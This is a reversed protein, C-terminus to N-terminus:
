EEPLLLEGVLAVAAGRSHVGLKDYLQHVYARVTAEAWGTRESIQRNSRGRRLHLLLRADRPTLEYRARLTRALDSERVVEHRLWIVFVVPTGDDVEVASLYAGRGAGSPEIRIPRGEHVAERVSAQLDPLLAHGQLSGCTVGLIRSARATLSLVVMHPDCAIMGYGLQELVLQALGESDTMSATTRPVVTM